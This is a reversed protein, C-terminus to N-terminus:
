RSYKELKNQPEDCFYYNGGTDLCVRKGFIKEAEKIRDLESSYEVDRMFRGHAILRDRGALVCFALGLIVGIVIDKM